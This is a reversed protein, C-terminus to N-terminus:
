GRMKQLTSDQAYGILIAARWDKIADGFAAVLLLAVVLSFVGILVYQKAESWLKRLWVSLSEGQGAIHPLNKRLIPLVVSVAVGLAVFFYIEWFSM